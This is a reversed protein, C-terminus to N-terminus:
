QIVNEAAVATLVVYLRALHQLSVSFRVINVM